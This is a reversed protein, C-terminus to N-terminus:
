PSRVKLNPHMLTVEYPNVQQTSWNMELLNFSIGLRPLISEYRGVPDSANTWQSILSLVNKPFPCPMCLFVGSLSSSITQLKQARYIFGKLIGKNRKDEAQEDINFDIFPEALHAMLRVSGRADKFILDYNPLTVKNFFGQELRNLEVESVCAISKWMDLQRNYLGTRHAMSFFETVVYKTVAIVAGPM